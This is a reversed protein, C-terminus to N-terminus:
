FVELGYLKLILKPWTKLEKFLRSNNFAKINGLYAEYTTPFWVGFGKFAGLDIRLDNSYASGVYYATLSQSLAQRTIRIQELILDRQNLNYYYSEFTALLTSLDRNEGLLFPLEKLKELFENRQHPNESFDKLMIKALKELESIFVLSLEKQNITSVAQTDLRNNTTAMKEFFYPIKKALKYPSLGEDLSPIIFDYPLGSFNKVQTSGIIFDTVDKLEYAVELTQLPCADMALIDIKKNFIEQYTKLNEAINGMSLKNLHPYHDIAVAGFQAMQDRSFGEGNGWIVLMTHDTPYMQESEVIFNLLRMKQSFDNEGIVKLPTMPVDVQAFPTNKFESFVSFRSIGKSGPTDLEVMVKSFSSISASYMENLDEQAYKFLDNDAQMYVLIKWSRFDESLAFSPSSILFILILLKVKFFLKNM